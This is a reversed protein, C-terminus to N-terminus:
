FWIMLGDPEKTIYPSYGAERLADRLERIKEEGVPSSLIVHIRYHGRWGPIYIEDVINEKLVAEIVSAIERFYLTEWVNMAVGGVKRGPAQAPSGWGGTPRM